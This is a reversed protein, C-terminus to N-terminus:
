RIGLYGEDVLGYAALVGELWGFVVEVGGGNGGECGAAEDAPLSDLYEEVRAAVDGEELAGDVVEGDEVWFCALAEGGVEGGGAQGLFGIGCDLFPVVLAGLLQAAIGCGVFARSRLWVIGRVRSVLGRVHLRRMGVGSGRGRAVGGSACIVEIGLGLM